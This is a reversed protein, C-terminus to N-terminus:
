VKESVHYSCRREESLIHELRTVQYQDGLIKQFLDLESQCFAKNETAATCIPCHNEHLIYGTSNKEVNAMYGEDTRIEALRQLKGKLSNCNKISEQYRGLANKQRADIIKGVGQEGFVDEVATMLQITLDSHSDSFKTDAAKTVKWYRAPRGRGQKVDQFMILGDDTLNQLHQRAGMSTIKLSKAVEAATKPGEVKLLYLIKDSSSKNTNDIMSSNNM